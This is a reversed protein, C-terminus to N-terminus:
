FSKIMFQLLGDKRAMGVFLALSKKLKFSHPFEIPKM